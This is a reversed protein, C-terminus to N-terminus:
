VSRNVATDHGHGAGGTTGGTVVIRQHAGGRLRMIGTGATVIDITAQDAARHTLVEGGTAVAGGTM